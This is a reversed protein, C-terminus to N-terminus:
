KLYLGVLILQVTMRLMSFITDRIIGLQLYFFIALPVLMLAYMWLMSTISLDVSM